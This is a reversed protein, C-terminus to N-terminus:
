YRYHSRIYQILSRLCGVIPPAGGRTNPTTNSLLLTLETTYRQAVPQIIPPNSYRCPTPIKRKVVTDLGARSGVLGGTWHTCPAKKKPNLAAPAHFQGSVEMWHQTWSPTSSYWWEELVGELRPAWNFCLSSMVEIPYLSFIIENWM